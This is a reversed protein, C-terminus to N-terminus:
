DEETGKKGGNEPGLIEKLVEKAIEQKTQKNQEESLLQVYLIDGEVSSEPLFKGNVTVKQGDTFFLSVKDAEAKGVKVKLPRDATLTARSM